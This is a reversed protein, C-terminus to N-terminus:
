SRHREQTSHNEALYAELLRRRARPLRKAVAQSSDGIIRATEAATFGQVLVMQLCIVDKPALVRLAARLAEDEIWQDEFSVLSSLAADEAAVREELSVWRMLRRRRLLDIGRCYATHFLWRRIEEPAGGAVLPAAGRKAARWADCFTDQLLDRAQEPHAILGGLFGLLERQHREVLATFEAFSLLEPSAVADKESMDAEDMGEATLPADM